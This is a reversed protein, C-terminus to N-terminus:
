RSASEARPARVAHGDDQVSATDARQSTLAGAQHLQPPAAVPRRLNGCDDQGFGQGPVVTAVEMGVPQESGALYPVHVFRLCARSLARNRMHVPRAPVMEAVSAITTAKALVQGSGTQEGAVRMIKACQGLV